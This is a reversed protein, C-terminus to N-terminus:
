EYLGRATQADTVSLATNQESSVDPFLTSFTEARVSSVIPVPNGPPATTFFGGALAPPALSALEIGPDPLDGQPAFPLVNLSEQRSFEM